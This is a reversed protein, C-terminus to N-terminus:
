VIALIICLQAVGAGFGFLVSRPKASERFTFCLSVHFVFNPLLGQDVTSTKEGGGLLVSHYLFAGLQFEEAKLSPLQTHSFVCAFICQRVVNAALMSSTYLM